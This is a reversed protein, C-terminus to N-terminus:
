SSGALCDARVVRPTDLSDPAPRGLRVLREPTAGLFCADGRAFAFVTCHPYGEVLRRLAETIDAPQRLRMQVRRALVLKDVAGKRVRDVADAVTEKWPDDDTCECCASAESVEHHVPNENERLLSGAESALARLTRQADGDPGALANVTVWCSEGRWIFLLRPLVLLANPFGEWEPSEGAPAFSFGGLFVPAPVPCGDVQEVVATSLLRRRVAEVQAFREPGRGGLRAAAGIAVMSFGAAPEVWLAKEEGSTRQFVTLPDITDIPTTISTLTFGDTDIASRTAMASSPDRLGGAEVSTLPNSSM